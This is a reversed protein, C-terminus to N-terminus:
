SACATGLFSALSREYGGPDAQFVGVHGAGPVPRYTVLHPLARAFSAAVSPPAVTDASGQFLLIPVRLAGTHALQNLDSFDIGARVHIAEEGVDRILAALPAPVGHQRAGYDLVSGWDLAPSDLVVGCVSGASPSHRAEATDRVDNLVM